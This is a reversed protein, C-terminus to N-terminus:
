NGTSGFGGVRATGSESVESIEVLKVELVNTMAIQAIREGNSMYSDVGSNYLLVMLEDRYDSDIVGVGNCLMFGRKLSNGSRPYVHVVHGSPIELILGTPIMMRDGQEFRVTGGDVKRKQPNHYTKSYYTIERGEELHSCIDMAASGSTALYPAKAHSSLLKYSLDAM